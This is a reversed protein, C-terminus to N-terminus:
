QPLEVTEVFRGQLGRCGPAISGFWNGVAPGSHIEAIEQVFVGWRHVTERHM